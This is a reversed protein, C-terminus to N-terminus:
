LRFIEKVHALFEALGLITGLIAATVFKHKKLGDIDIRHEKLEKLVAAQAKAVDDKYTQLSEKIWYVREATIVLLDHDTHNTEV